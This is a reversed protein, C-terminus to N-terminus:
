LLGPAQGVSTATKAEPAAGVPEGAGQREPPNEGSEM